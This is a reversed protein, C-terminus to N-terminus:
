ITVPPVQDLTDDLSVPVDAVPPEGTRNPPSRLGQPCCQALTLSHYEGFDLKTNATVKPLDQHHHSPGAPDHSAAPLHCTRTSAPQVDATFSEDDYEDESYRTAPGPFSPQQPPRRRCNHLYM